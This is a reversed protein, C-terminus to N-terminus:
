PGVRVFGNRKLTAIIQGRQDLTDALVLLPATV